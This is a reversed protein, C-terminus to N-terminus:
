APNNAATSFFRRASPSRTTTSFVPLPNFSTARAISAAPSGSTISGVSLASWLAKSASAFFFPPPHISHRFGFDVDRDCHRDVVFDLRKRLEVIPHLRDQIVQTLWPLENEDVISRRIAGRLPDFRNAFFIWTHNRNNEGPIKPMLDGHSCPHVEALTTGYDDHISIQLVRRLDDGIQNPFPTLAIFDHIGHARLTLALGPKLFGRCGQKVTQDVADGINLDREIGPIEPQHIALSDIRQRLHALPM